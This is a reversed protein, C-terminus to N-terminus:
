SEKSPRNRGTYFSPLLNSRRKTRETHTHTEHGETNKFQLLYQTTDKVPSYPHLYSHSNGRINEPNKWSTLSPLFWREVCPHYSNAWGPNKRSSSYIVSYLILAWAKRELRRPGLGARVTVRVHQSTLCMKSIAQIEIRRGTICSILSPFVKHTYYLSWLASM